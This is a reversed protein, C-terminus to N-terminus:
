DQGPEDEGSDLERMTFQSDELAQMSGAVDLTLLDDILSAPLPLNEDITRRVLYDRLQKRALHTSKYEAARTEHEAARASDIRRRGSWDRAMGVVDRALMGLAVLTVSGVTIVIDIPNEYRISEVRTITDQTSDNADMYRSVAPTVFPSFSSLIAALPTVGSKGFPSDPNPIGGGAQLGPWPRFEPMWLGPESLVAQQAEALAVWYQLEGGFQCVTDLDDTVQRIVEIPVNAGLDVTIQVRQAM